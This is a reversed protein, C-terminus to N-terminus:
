SVGGSRSAVCLTRCGPLHEALYEVCGSVTAVLPYDAEPIDIGTREHLAVVVRLFDISDLDIQEQMLAEPDLHEIDADPAVMLIVDRVLTQLNETTM